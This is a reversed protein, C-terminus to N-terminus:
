LSFGKGRFLLKLQNRWSLFSHEACLADYKEKLQFYTHNKCKNCCTDAYSCPKSFSFYDCTEAETLPILSGSAPDMCLVIRCWAKNPGAHEEPQPTTSLVQGFTPQVLNNQKELRIQNYADNMQEKTKAMEARLEQRKAKRNKKFTVFQNYLLNM